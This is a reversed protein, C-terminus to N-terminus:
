RVSPDSFDAVFVRHNLEGESDESVWIMWKSCVELEAYACDPLMVSAFYPFAADTIKSSTKDDLRLRRNAKRSSYGLSSSTSHPRHVWKCLEEESKQKVLQYEPHVKPKKELYAVFLSDFVTGEM